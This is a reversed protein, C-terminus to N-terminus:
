LKSKAEAEKMVKDAKDNAVKEIEDARKNAEAEAQDGKSNGQNELTEAKRYFETKADQAKKEGEKRMKDALIKKTQKEIPNSASAVVADAQKNAEDKIRQYAKDGEDRTKNAANKGENRAIDGLRKGEARVKDAKEKAEAKLRDAEAQAKKMGESIQKNAENKAIEKGQDKINDVFAKQFGKLSVDVKPKLVTGGIMLDVPIMQEVNLNWGKTSAQKVWGDLVTNAAGLAKRPIRLWGGYSITQDLKTIGAFKMTAGEGLPIIMSDLLKFIGDKIQFKLIQNKLKLNQLWNVKLQAGIQNLVDLNKVAADTFSVMGSVNMSNYNPQMKENLISSMDINANILGDVMKAIPAFKKIMPFYEFSQALNLKEIKSDMKTFPNKVNKSDYTGNLSVNGGLLSAHLNEMDLQANHLRTKGGLNTLIYNDYVLKDIKTNLGMDINQPLEVISLMGTDAAKPEEPVASESIFSNVNIYHSNLSVDGKLTEGAFSYGLLNELYGSAQFDNKGIAGKIEPMNVKQPTFDLLLKEINYADKDTVAQYLLNTISLKGKADLRSFNKSTAASYNGKAFLDADILGALKTGKELPILGLIKSLDLKGKVNGDIFPDSVPTKLLLKMYFPEGALNLNLKNLDVISNDPVGDPNSYHLDLFINDAPYQLSPYKFSGNNIKLVVDTAPMKDDTMKGKMSGSFGLTGSAQLDNFNNKYMGPVLSLFSKFTNELAKFKIDMDIDNENLDVFGDSELHLDNLRAKGKAFSFKMSKLDMQIDALIETGIDYLWNVGGYGLTFSPATTKTELLFNDSTFDGSSQHDVNKMETFFDMSRDNYIIHGKEIEFSKLAMKFTGGGTDTTTKSSDTKVIDWNARGSPLTEINIEPKNLYVRKIKIEDGKIASMIDLTLRMEPFYVLTDGNFSDKGVVSLKNIGLSVNPFSKIFSLSIDNDFNLTANLQKNATNKIAQVIKGKFLFPATILLLLLVGVTIGTIKLFKKM